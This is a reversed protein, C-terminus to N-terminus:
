ESAGKIHLEQEDPDDIMDVIAPAVVILRRRGFLDDDPRDAVGFEIVAGVRNDPHLPDPHWVHTVFHVDEDPGFRITTSVPRGDSYTNVDRKQRALGPSQGPPYARIQAMVWDDHAEAQDDNDIFAVRHLWRDLDWLVDTCFTGASGLKSAELLRWVREVHKVCQAHAYKKYDDNTYPVM